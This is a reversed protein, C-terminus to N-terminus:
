AGGKGFRAKVENWVLDGTDHAQIETAIGSLASKLAIKSSAYLMKPKRPGEDPSWAIFLIKNRSGEGPSLEFTFDYVAYRPFKLGDLKMAFFDFKVSEIQNKTKAISYAKFLEPDEKIGDVIMQDDMVKDVVINKEDPSIEFTIYKIKKGLKLENYKAIAEASPNCGSPSSM